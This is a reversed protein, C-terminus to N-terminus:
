ILQNCEVGNIPTIFIQQEESLTKKLKYEQIKSLEPKFAIGGTSFAGSIIRNYLYEIFEHWELLDPYETNSELYTIGDALHFVLLAVSITCAKNDLIAYPIKFGNDWNYNNAYTYLTEEDSIANIYNIAEDTNDKYLHQKIENINM